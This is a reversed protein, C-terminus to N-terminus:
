KKMARGYSALSRLGDRNRDDCYDVTDISEVARELFTLPSIKAGPRKERDALRQPIWGRNVLVIKGAATRVPTVVLFGSSGGWQLISSSIDKPASRPGVLMEKEHLLTGTITIKRYDRISANDLDAETLPALQLGQEREQILEKKRGLRKVQWVGLSFAVCVPVGFFFISSSNARKPLQRESSLTSATSLTRNAGVRNRFHM